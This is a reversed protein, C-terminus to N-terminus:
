LIQLLEVEFILTANPPIIGQGSPGYGLGPPIKLQRKGGVKMTLLGEDWGAIVQGVGITFLSPQGRDLSSDFRTGNELWGTYHVSIRDAARPTAGEGAKLDYYKLGTPTTVYDADAVATPASGGSQVPADDGGCGAFLGVGVLVVLWRLGFGLRM